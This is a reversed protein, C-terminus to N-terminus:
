ETFNNCAGRPHLHREDGECSPGIYQCGKIAIAIYIIALIPKYVSM